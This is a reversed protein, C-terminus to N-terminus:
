SRELGALRQQQPDLGAVAVALRGFAGDRDVVRADAAARELDDQLGLQGGRAHVDESVRRDGPRQRLQAGAHAVVDDAHRAAVDM